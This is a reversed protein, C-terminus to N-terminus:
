SFGVTAAPRIDLVKAAFPVNIEITTEQTTLIQYAAMRFLKKVLEEAKRIGKQTGLRHLVEPSWVLNYQEMHYQKLYKPIVFNNVIIHREPETYDRFKILEVRDLLAPPIATSENATCIFMAKSLDFGFELYRDIFSKNQEPDLIELLTSTLDGGRQARALKDVEDFLIVPDSTGCDRLGVILRGPRSGVYARRMGRLEADDYLGGLPIKILKRGTAEAISKAITTKGSGPPGSLCMVTGFSKGIIQELAMHEMLHQKTDELGYHTSNLHQSFAKLDIAHSSSNEWPLEAVWQLYDLTNAHEATGTPTQQLKKLDRDIKSRIEPTFQLRALKKEMTEPPAIPPLTEVLSEHESKTKHKKKTISLLFSDLIVKTKSILDEQELFKIRQTRTTLARNGVIAVFTDPDEQESELAKLIKVTGKFKDESILKQVMTKLESIAEFEPVGFTTPPISYETYIAPAENSANKYVREIRGWTIFKLNVVLGDAREDTSDVAVIYCTKSLNNVWDKLPRRHYNELEESIIGLALMWENDHAWMYQTDKPIRLQFGEPDLQIGDQHKLIYLPLTSM